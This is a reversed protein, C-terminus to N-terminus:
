DEPVQKCNAITWLKGHYCMEGGHKSTGMELRAGSLEWGLCV